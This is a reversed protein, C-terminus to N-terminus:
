FNVGASEKIPVRIIRCAYILKFFNFDVSQGAYQDLIYDRKRARREQIPSHVISSM